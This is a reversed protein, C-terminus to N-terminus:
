VGGGGEKGNRRDRRETGLFRLNVRVPSFLFFKNGLDIKIFDTPDAYCKIKYIKQFFGGKLKLILLV